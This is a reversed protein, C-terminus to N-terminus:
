DHQEVQVDVCEWFWVGEPVPYWKSVSGAILFWDKLYTLGENYIMCYSTYNVYSIIRVVHGGNRGIAIQEKFPEQGAQTTAFFGLFMLFAGAIILLGLVSKIM